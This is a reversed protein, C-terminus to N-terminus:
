LDLLARLAKPNNAHMGLISLKQMGHFIARQDDSYIGVRDWQDIMPGWERILLRDTLGAVNLIDAMHFNAFRPKIDPHAVLFTTFMREFIFPFYVSTGDQYPIPDFVAPLREAHMVLHSVFAMFRDWFATTGAWINSFLLTNRASRPFQDLNIAVGAAAFARSARECLGPYWIEGHEWINYSLYLYHPYPNIFWVDHGPNGAIFDNFIKGGIGTKESFKPSLLGSVAYERHLGRRWFSLMHAVERREPQPDATVDYPLFDPDVADAMGPAYCITHIGIPKTGMM